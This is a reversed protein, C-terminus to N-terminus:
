MKAPVPEEDLEVGLEDQGFLNNAVVPVRFRRLSRDAKPHAPQQRDSAPTRHPSQHNPFEGLAGGGRSAARSFMLRRHKTVPQCHELCPDLSPRKVCSELPGNLLLFCSCSSRARVDVLM